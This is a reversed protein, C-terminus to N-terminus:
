KKSFVSKMGFLFRGVFTRKKNGNKFAERKAKREAKWRERNAKKKTKWAEKAKLRQEYRRKREEPTLYPEQYETYEYSGIGGVVVTLGGMMDEELAINIKSGTAIIEKTGFGLYSIVLIDGNKARISFNGDFDTQTGTTTGKIIVNVGPLALSDSQAIITGTILKTPLISDSPKSKVQEKHAKIFQEIKTPKTQAETKQFGLTTLFFLASTSWTRFTHREKRALVLDRELQNSNFRGCLSQNNIFSKVITEDTANTFDIVTKQCSVCHRGKERPSMVNWDEHCPEPINLRITKRM